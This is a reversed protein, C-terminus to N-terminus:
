SFLGILEHVEQLPLNLTLISIDFGLEQTRNISRLFLQENYPTTLLTSKVGSAAFLKAIDIMPIMHGSALFPFFFIHLKSSTHNTTGNTEAEGAM